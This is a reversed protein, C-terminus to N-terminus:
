KKQATFYLRSTRTIGDEYKKEESNVDLLLYGAEELMPVIDDADYGRELHREMSVRQTAKDTLRIDLTWIRDKGGFVFEVETDGIQFERPEYRQSAEVHDRTNMDFLFIAGPRINTAISRLARVMDKDTLLYNLSDYFSVAFNAQLGGPLQFRRIDSRVFTVHPLKKRAVTLMSTSNDIGIVTVFGAEILFRTINGTGCAIDIAVDKAVGHKSVTEMILENWRNYKERSMLQDYVMAFGSYSDRMGCRGEIVGQSGVTVAM